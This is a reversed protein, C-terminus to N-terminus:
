RYSFSTMADRAVLSKHPDDPLCIATQWEPPSFQFDVKSQALPTATKQAFVATGLFLAISITKVFQNKM